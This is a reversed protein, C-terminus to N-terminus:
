HFFYFHSLIFLPSSSWEKEFWDLFYRRCYFGRKGYSADFQLIEPILNVNGVGFTPAVALTPAAMAPGPPCYICGAAQELTIELALASAMFKLPVLRAQQFLGLMLNVQYRRVVAPQGNGTVGAPIETSGVLGFEMGKTFNAATGALTTGPSVGQIYRQRANCFGFQPTNENGDSDLVYGGVGEMSNQDIVGNQNTGTWETMGRVIDNYNIIDEIPTSGYLLRVRSFISQINNEFRVIQNAVGTGYLVVDFELTTNPGNMYGQAPLEIRIVSGPAFASGSKPSIRPTTKEAKNSSSPFAYRANWQVVSSESSPYWSFHSSM